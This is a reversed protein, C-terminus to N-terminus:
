THVADNLCPIHLTRDQLVFWAFPWEKSAVDTVFIVSNLSCLSMGVYLWGHESSGSYTICLM